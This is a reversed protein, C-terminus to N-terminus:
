CLKVIERLAKEFEGLDRHNYIIARVYMDSSSSQILLEGIGRIGDRYHQMKEEATKPMIQLAKKM